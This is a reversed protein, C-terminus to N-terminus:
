KFLKSKVKSLLSKKNKNGKMLAPKKLQKDTVYIDEINVAHDYALVLGIETHHDKNTEITFPINLRNAEKIYKSLYSYQLEGNLLLRTKPHKKMNELVQPYITKERVQNQTLAIVIRERFTGLFERKEDPNIEKAGYMGQQLYEEVDPKQKLQNVEM